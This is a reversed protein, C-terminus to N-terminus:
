ENQRCTKGAKGVHLLGNLLMVSRLKIVNEVNQRSCLGLYPDQRGLKLWRNKEMKGKMGREHRMGM